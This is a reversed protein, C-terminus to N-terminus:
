PSKTVVRHLTQDYGLLLIEGQGDQGFSVFGPDLAGPEDRVDTAAGNWRFSRVWGASYSGFFYRGRYCESLSSGRYVSGGIVATGGSDHPFEYAPPALGTADCGTAPTHCLSGETIPWGFNQGGRTGSPVVDIEERQNDGVDAIYLEAGDFWFRYPERLGYAWIEPRVGAVGVFPNSEPVSCGDVSPNVAVRLLKGNLLSLDQGNVESDDDGVGVYLFGEPGFRLMGSTNHHSQTPVDIVVSESAPDAVDPTAAPVTFQAVRLTNALTTYTVYFAHNTTFDPHFVLSLLGVEFGQTAMNASVDLFPTSRIGGEDVIVIRGSLRELVFIRHDGAPATAYVPSKLDSTLLSLGLPQCPPVNTEHGADRLTVPGGDPQPVVSVAGDREPPGADSAGSSAADSPEPVGGVGSNSGGTGGEGAGSGGLAASAGSGKGGVGAGSVGYGGPPLEVDRSVSPSEGDRPTRSPAADEAASNASRSVAADRPTRQMGNANSAGGRAGASVSAGAPGYIWGVRSSSDDSCAILLAAIAWRAAVRGSHVLVSTRTSMTRRFAM